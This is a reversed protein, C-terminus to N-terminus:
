AQADRVAEAERRAVMAAEALELARRERSAIQRHLEDLAAAEAEADRQARRAVEDAEAHQQAVVRAIGAAIADDTLDLSEMATMTMGSAGRHLLYCDGDVTWLLVRNERVSSSALGAPLDFEPRPVWSWAEPKGRQDATYASGDDLFAFTHGAALLVNFKM